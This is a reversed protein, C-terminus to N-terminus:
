RVITGNAPYPDFARNFEATGWRFLNGQETRTGGKVTSAHGDAYTVNVTTDLHRNFDWQTDWEGQWDLKYAIGSSPDEGSDGVMIREVPDKMKELIRWASTRDFSGNYLYSLRARIDPAGAVGANINEIFPSEDSPCFYGNPDSYYVLLTRSHFWKPDNFANSPAATNNSFVSPFKGKFDEAYMSLAIGIQRVNSLCASSQAVKRAAGLAPLLLAILLAIISIVVLLEILTFGTRHVSRYCQSPHKPFM